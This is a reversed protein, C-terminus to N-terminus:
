SAHIIPELAFTIKAITQWNWEHQLEHSISWLKTAILASSLIYGVRAKTPLGVKWPEWYVWNNQTCSSWYPKKIGNQMSVISKLYWVDRTTSAKSLTEQPSCGYWLCGHERTAESAWLEHNGVHPM